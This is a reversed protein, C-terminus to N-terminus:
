FPYQYRRNERMARRLRRRRRGEETWTNNEDWRRRREDPIGTMIAEISSVTPQEFTPKVVRRPRQGSARKEPATRDATRVSAAAAKSVTTPKESVPRARDRRVSAISGGVDDLVAEDASAENEDQVSSAQEEPQSIVESPLETVGTAPKEPSETM